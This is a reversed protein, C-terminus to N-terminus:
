FCLIDTSNSQALSPTGAPRAKLHKADIIDTPLPTDTGKELPPLASFAARSAVSERPNV